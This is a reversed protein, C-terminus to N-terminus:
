WVTMTSDISDEVLSSLYACCSFDVYHPVIKM